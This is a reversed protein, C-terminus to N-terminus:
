HATVTLDFVNQSADNTVTVELGSTTFSAYKDAIPPGSYPKDPDGKLPPKAVLVKHHGAVAGDGDKFTTLPCSGDTGVIGRASVKEEDSRLVVQAGVVPKKDPYTVNIVVPYTKTSQKCGCIVGMALFIGILRFGNRYVLPSTDITFQL